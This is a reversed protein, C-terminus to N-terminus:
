KTLTHDCYYEMAAKMFDALGARHKDYNARFRADEVYLTGLGRYLEVPATYFQQIWTHHQAIVQQVEPDGPPRDMLGAMRRPIEDGNQKMAKWQEKSMQRVRRESEEVIRPDYKERVERQYGEIEEKSFGAYLEEDTMAM